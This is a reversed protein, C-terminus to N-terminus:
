KNENELHKDELASQDLPFQAEGTGYIFLIFQRVKIEKVTFAQLPVLKIKNYSFQKLMIYSGYYITAILM